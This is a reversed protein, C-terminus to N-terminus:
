LEFIFTVRGAHFFGGAASYDIGFELNVDDEPGLAHPTQLMYDRCAEDTRDTTDILLESTNPSGDANTTLNIRVVDLTTIPSTAYCASVGVFTLQEGALLTPLTPEIAIPVDELPMSSSGFTTVGTSPRQGLADIGPAASIKQWTMPSANLRIEGSAPLYRTDAQSQTLYSSAPEGGLRAANAVSLGGARNSIQKNAQKKAIKKVQKRETKDLSSIVANTGAVASGAVAVVLAVVAVVMAPSPRTRLLVRM